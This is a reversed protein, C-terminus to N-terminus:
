SDIVVNGDSDRIEEIEHVEVFYPRRQLTDIVQSIAFSIAMVAAASAAIIVTVLDKTRVGVEEQYPPSEYTVKHDTDLNALVGEISIQNEEFLFQIDDPLDLYIKTM